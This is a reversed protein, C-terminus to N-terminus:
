SYVYYLNLALCVLSSNLWILVLLNLKTNPTDPYETEKIHSWNNWFDSWLFSPFASTTKYSCKLLDNNVMQGTVRVQLLWYMLAVVEGVPLNKLYILHFFFVFRYWFVKSDTDTNCEYYCCGRRTLSIHM